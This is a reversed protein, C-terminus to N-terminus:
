NITIDSLPKLDYQCTDEQFRIRFFCQIKTLIEKPYYKSIVYIGSVSRFSKDLIM